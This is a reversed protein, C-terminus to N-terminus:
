GDVDGYMQDPTLIDSFRERLRRRTEYCLHCADAYLDAHDTGYQRALRVPGGELLPGVIPHTEPDYERCIDALPRQFMNGIVIGQCLHLNGYPDVHVREPERLEEHPCETFQEWSKKSTRDAPIQGVGALADPSEPEAIAIDGAAIGLQKAAAIATRAREMSEDNGHYSDCSISLDNIAGAVPDLWLLADELSTAWYGNTVIGARFKKDVTEQIAKVMVPYYLFPEGGEFYIWEITGLGAAQELINRIIELTMTSTHWPSGWVFCHDCEYTCQYTLLLHLQSLKM